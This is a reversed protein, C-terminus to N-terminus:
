HYLVDCVPGNGTDAKYEEALKYAREVMEPLRQGLGEAMNRRCDHCVTSMYFVISSVLADFIINLDDVEDTAEIIKAALASTENLRSM